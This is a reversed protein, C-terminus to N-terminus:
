RVGRFHSPHHPEGYANASLPGAFADSDIRDAAVAFDTITDVFCSTAAIDGVSFAFM